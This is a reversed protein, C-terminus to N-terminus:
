CVQGCGVYSRLESVPIMRCNDVTTSFNALTLTIEQHTLKSLFIVKKYAGELDRINTDVTTSFNLFFKFNIITELIRDLYQLFLDVRSRECCIGIIM